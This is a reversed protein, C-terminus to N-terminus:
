GTGEPALEAAIRRCRRLLAEDDACADRMTGSSGTNNHRRTASLEERILPLAPLAETGMGALCAATAPRTTPKTAWQALFTPLVEAPDARVKWLAITAEMSGENNMLERLRPALETAQPGLSGAIQLTLNRDYHQDATLAEHLVPLVLATEGTVARLADAAKLRHSTTSAGDSVLERLYPAVEAAAPGYRVLARLAPWQTQAGHNDRLIRVILPLSDAARLRSLAAVLRSSDSKADNPGLSALRHQLVPALRAAAPGIAGVWRSLDEPIPGGSELVAALYPVVREDGQLALVNVAGGFLSTEWDEPEWEDEWEVLAAELVDATFRAIPHVFGLERLAARSLREEHEVLQRALLAVTLDNPARWGTLLQGSMQVAAMRQGWDRSYLQENLLEFRQDTSDGLADHLDELLDDALDADISARHAAELDRLHSLMTNTRPRESASASAPSSASASTAAAGARERKAEYAIRMVETAIDVCDEPLLEPACRALQALVTLRLEPDAGGSSIVERLCAGAEAGLLQAHRTGLMGIARVLSRVVEDAQEVAMRGRLAALVRVPDDHLQVVAEPLVERLGPDPDALLDLFFGARGRVTASATLFNGVWHADEEEDEFLGGIEEPDPEEEGAISCLLGVLSGRDAVSADAVLDFLFPLCAVTSDYVDGQHHVAGYMGDLAIDREEPDASALGRLLRPVDSADGYAHVMSAWDIDDIETFAM